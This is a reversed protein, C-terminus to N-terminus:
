GTARRFIITQYYRNISVFFYINFNEPRKRNEQNVQKKCFIKDSITPLSYNIKADFFSFLMENKFTM